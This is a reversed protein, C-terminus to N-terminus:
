RFNCVTTCPNISYSTSHCFVVTMITRSCQALSQSQYLLTLSTIYFQANLKWLNQKFVLRGEQFSTILTVSNQLGNYRVIFTTLEPFTIEPIAMTINKQTIM